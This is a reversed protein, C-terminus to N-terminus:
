STKEASKWIGGGFGDLGRIKLSLSEEFTKSNLDKYRIQIPLWADYKIGKRNPYTGEFSGFSTVIKAGNKLLAVESEKKFCNKITNKTVQDIHEEFIKEIDNPTAILRINIAPRTGTNSVILNFTASNVGMSHEEVYAVIIPRNSQYWSMKAFILSAISIIIAAISILYQAIQNPEM